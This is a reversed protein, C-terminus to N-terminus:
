YVFPPGRLCSPFNAIALAALELSRVAEPWIAEDKMQLLSCEKDPM